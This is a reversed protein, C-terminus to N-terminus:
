LIQPLTPNEVANWKAVLSKKDSITSNDTGGPPAAIKNDTGGPPSVFVANKIRLLDEESFNSTRKLIDIMGMQKRNVSAHMVTNVCNDQLFSGMTTQFYLGGKKEILGVNKLQKLRTYYQKRTLGIKSYTGTDAEIGNKALLFIMLADPSSLMRILKSAAELQERSNEAPVVAINALQQENMM